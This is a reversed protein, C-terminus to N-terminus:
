TSTRIVSWWCCITTYQAPPTRDANAALVSTIEIRCTTEIRPAEVAPSSAACHSVGATKVEVLAVAVLAV